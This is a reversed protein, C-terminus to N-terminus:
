EDEELDDDEDDEDEDGEVDGNQAPEDDDMKADEPYIAPKKDRKTLTVNTEGGDSAEDDSIAQFTLKASKGGRDRRRM